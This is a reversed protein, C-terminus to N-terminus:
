SQKASIAEKERKIKIILWWLRYSAPKLEPKTFSEETFADYVEARKSVYYFRNVLIFYITCWKSCQNGRIGSLTEFIQIVTKM